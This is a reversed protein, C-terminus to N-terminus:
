IELGKKDKLVQNQRSIQYFYFTESTQKFLKNMSGEQFFLACGVSPTIHGPEESTSRKNIKNMGMTM